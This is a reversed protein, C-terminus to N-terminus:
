CGSGYDAGNKTVSGSGGINATGIENVLIEGAGVPLSMNCKITVNGGVSQVNNM